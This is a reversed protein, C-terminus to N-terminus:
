KRERWRSNNETRKAGGDSNTKGHRSFFFFFGGDIADRPGRRALASTYMVDIIILALHRTHTRQRSKLTSLQIVTPAAHCMFDSAFLPFADQAFGCPEYCFALASSHHHVEKLKPLPPSLTSLALISQASYSRFGDQMFPPPCIGPTLPPPQGLILFRDLLLSSTSAASTPHPPQPATALVTLHYRPHSALPLHPFTPSYSM